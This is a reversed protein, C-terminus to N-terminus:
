TEKECETKGKNLKLKRGYRKKKRGKEKAAQM